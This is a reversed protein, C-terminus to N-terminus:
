ATAVFRLRVYDAVWRGQADCLSPRLLAEVDAQVAAQEAPGLDDVFPGAFTRLWGAMGQPLPTPRPFLSIDAVRLGAAELLRAYQDATPFYWPHRAIGDIGRKALAALLATTVAAVNGFGGFEGVFRGGPKLHRVVGAVVAAPDRKMWHLAANSFVADVQEPLHLAHGDMVRADLGRARAAAVMEPSGDVGIVRAGSGAIRATLTGDGCGLDLITEGPQPALLDVVPQGLVPVFGAAALYSQPNWTQSTM